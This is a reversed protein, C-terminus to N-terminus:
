KVETKYIYFRDSNNSVSDTVIRYLPPASPQVGANKSVITAVTASNAIPLATFVSVDKNHSAIVDYFPKEGASVVITTAGRDKQNLEGNILRLDHTFNAATQPAYLYGYVYRDVGSFIMGGILVALPILGALRAYPNLPFLKYWNGLLTSIGMAMLLIVPVFTVGILNPNIILIPMLLVIWAVTIYSRATYKTTALQLIGLLILITSGLGYIPSMLANDNPTLFDAYQKILQTINIGINPLQDPIGLLTLSISPDKFIAYVLPAVTILACGGALLLKPKSLRKVIFRLHPHLVIASILALLIYFSLPTYLSIAAIGFLAIKWLGIWKAKRSVMLAAVLLWVTLFIYMISEAGCQAVFVFQGTTIILIATIIAVNERFWMRLLMLIGVASALGLVLSPLKISIDSLGFFDISIRQLLHYPLNVIASPDFSGLSFSLSNSMIVSQVEAQSLGGPISLGAVILLTTITLGILGYGIPYRWRYLTYDTVHKGM